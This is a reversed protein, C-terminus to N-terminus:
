APVMPSSPQGVLLEDIESADLVEKELLAQALAQLSPMQETLVRKAREYNETVLRTIERDIERAMDQSVERTTGLSRGLFM